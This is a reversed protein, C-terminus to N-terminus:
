VSGQAHAAQTSGSHHGRYEKQLSIEGACRCQWLGAWHTCRRRASEKLIPKWTKAQAESSHIIKEPSFPALRGLGNGEEERRELTRAERTKPGKIAKFEWKQSEQGM